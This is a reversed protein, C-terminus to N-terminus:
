AIEDIILVEKFAYLVLRPVMSRYCAIRELDIYTRLFRPMKGRLCRHLYRAFHAFIRPTRLGIIKGSKRKLNEFILSIPKFFMARKGRGKPISPTRPVRNKRVYLRRAFIKPTKCFYCSALKQLKNQHKELIAVVDFSTAHANEYFRM